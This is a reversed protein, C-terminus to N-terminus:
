GERRLWELLIDHARQGSDANAHNVIAVIVYRRGSDAHVYGAIARVDVLQGTKIHAAGSAAPRKRTTGDVGMIPLSSMFEPM